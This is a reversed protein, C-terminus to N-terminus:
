SSSTKTVSIILVGSDYNAKLTTMDVGPPLEFQREFFGYREEVQRSVSDKGHPSEREGRVTLSNDSISLDIDEELMGPISLFVRIMRSTEIVDASPVFRITEESRSSLRGLFLDWLQNLEAQLSEWESEPNWPRLNM